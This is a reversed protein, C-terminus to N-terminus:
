HKEVRGSQVDQKILFQHTLRTDYSEQNDTITRILFLHTLTAGVPRDDVHVARNPGAHAPLTWIVMVSFRVFASLVSTPRANRMTQDKNHKAGSLQM